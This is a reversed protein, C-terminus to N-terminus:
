FECVVKVPIWFINISYCGGGLDNKGIFKWGGDTEKMEVASLEQVGYNNLELNKM